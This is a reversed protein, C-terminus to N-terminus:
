GHERSSAALRKKSKVVLEPWRPSFPNGYETWFLLHMANRPCTNVCGLCIMCTGRARPYGDIMKLREAPCYLICLACGNCRRRWARNRYLLTDIWKNDALVGILFMPLPWVLYPFGSVRGRAFAFGYSVTNAADWRLPVLRDLLRWLAKPGLRATVVNGPYVAWSRGGTRWGKLRLILWVLLGANEAGIACSYLVFAPRGEGNPLSRLLWALFPWPPKFGYVPFAVALADGDLRAQFDRFYHFRHVTVAAGASRVGDIFSRTLHMTNGSASSAVVDMHQPATQLERWEVTFMVLAAASCGLVIWGFTSYGGPV